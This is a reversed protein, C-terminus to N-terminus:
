TYKQLNQISNFLQFRNMINGMMICRQGNFYEQHLHMYFYQNILAMKYRDGSRLIVLRIWTWELAIYMRIVLAWSSLGYLIQALKLDPHIGYDIFSNNPFCIFVFDGFHYVTGKLMDYRNIIKFSFNNYSLM